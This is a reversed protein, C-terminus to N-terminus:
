RRKRWYVFGAISIAITLFTAVAGYIEITRAINAASFVEALTAANGELLLATRFLSWLALVVIAVSVLLLLSLPDRIRM